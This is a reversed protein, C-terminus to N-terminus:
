LRRVPAGPWLAALPVRLDRLEHAPVGLLTPATGPALRVGAWSGGTGTSPATRTDPGAVLLRDGSWLLDMCGDPLVPHVTGPEATLTWVRAGDLRSARETYSDGM